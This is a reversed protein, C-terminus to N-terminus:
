NQIPFDIFIWDQLGTKFIKFDLTGPVDCGFGPYVPLPEGWLYPPTRGPGWFNDKRINESTAEPLWAGKSGGQPGGPLRKARFSKPKPRQFDMMTQSISRKKLM